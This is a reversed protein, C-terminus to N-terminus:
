ITCKCIKHMKFWVNRGWIVFWRYDVAAGLFFRSIGTSALHYFAVEATCAGLGQKKPPINAFATPRKLDMVKSSCCSFCWVVMDNIWFDNTFFFLTSLKSHPYWKIIVHFVVVEFFMSGFFVCLVRNVILWSLWDLLYELHAM